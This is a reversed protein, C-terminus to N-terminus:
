VDDRWRWGLGVMAVHRPPDSSALEFERGSGHMQHHLPHSERWESCKKLEGKAWEELPKPDPKYWHSADM